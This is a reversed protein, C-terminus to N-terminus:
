GTQDTSIMGNLQQFDIVNIGVYHERNHIKQPPDLLPEDNTENMIMELTIKTKSQINKKNM